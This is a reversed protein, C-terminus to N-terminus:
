DQLNLIESIESSHFPDEFHKTCGEYTNKIKGNRITANGFQCKSKYVDVTCQFREKNDHKYISSIKSPFSPPFQSTYQFPLLNMFEIMRNINANAYSRGRITEYFTYTKQHTVNTPINESNRYM